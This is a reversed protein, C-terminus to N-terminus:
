FIVGSESNFIFPASIPGPAGGKIFHRPRAKTSSGAAFPWFLGSRLVAIRKAALPPLPDARLADRVEEGGPQERDPLLDFLDREAGRLLRVDLLPQPLHPPLPVGRRQHERRVRFAAALQQETPVVGEGSAVCQLLALHLQRRQEGRAVHGLEALLRVLAQGPQGRRRLVERQPHVHLRRPLVELRDEGPPVDAALERLLRLPELDDVPLPALDHRPRVLLRVDHTEAVRAVDQAPQRRQLLLQLLALALQGDVQLPLPVGERPEVEDALPDEEVDEGLRRVRLLQHLVERLDEGPCPQLM